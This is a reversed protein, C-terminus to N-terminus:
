HIIVHSKSLQWYCVVVSTSYCWCYLSLSSMAVSRSILSLTWINALGVPTIMASLKLM